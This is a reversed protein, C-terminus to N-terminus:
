ATLSSRTPRAPAPGLQRRQKPLRLAFHGAVRAPSLKGGTAVILNTRALWLWGIPRNAGTYPTGTGDGALLLQSIYANFTNLGTLDLTARHTGGSTVTSKRINILQNNTVILAGSCLITTYNSPNNGEDVSLINGVMLGPTAYGPTVSASGVTLTLGAGISTTHYSNTNRYTLSQIALNTDVINNATGNQGPTGNDGINTFVIDSTGSIPGPPSWNSNTSWYAPGPVNWTNTDAFALQATLVAAMMGMAAGLSLTYNKLYPTRKM